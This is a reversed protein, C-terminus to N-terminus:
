RHDVSGTGTARAHAPVLDTLATAVAVQRGCGRVSPDRSRLHGRASWLSAGQEVLEGGEVASVEVRERDDSLCAIVEAPAADVRVLPLLDVEGVLHSPLQVGPSREPFERAGFM